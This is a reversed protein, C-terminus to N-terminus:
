DRVGVVLKKKQNDLPDIKKGEPYPTIDFLALYSGAGVSRSNSNKFNWAFILKKNENDFAMKKEIIIENGIPDYISVTGELYFEELLKKVNDPVVQLIMGIVEGNKNKGLNLDEFINESKLVAIIEDPLGEMNEINGLDIPTVAEPYLEFPTIKRDVYLKRRTNKTNNQFNDLEDAVCDGEHIWISDGDHMYKVGDNIKTVAFTMTKGSHDLDDLNVTYRKNNESVDLFYFPREKTVKKVPESFKVTLTDQISEDQYSLLKASEKDWHIIPAIKDYIKVTKKDIKGGLPFYYEKFDLKEDDDVYTRPDDSKDESVKIYFGEPHLGSSKVTFDRVGPFVISNKLIEKVYDENLGDDLDDTSKVRISDVYGDANTDYYEALEIEVTGGFDTPVKIMLTDLVLKPDEDNRFVATINDIFHYQLTGDGVDPDDNDDIVKKPVTVSFVNGSKKLTFTEKDLSNGETTRLEVKAKTYDYEAEGSNYSFRIELPDMTETIKSVPNDNFYFSLERDWCRVDFQEEPLPDLAPDIVVDFDFNITTDDEFTVVEGTLADISDRIIHYDLEFNFETTEGVLPFLNGFTFGTTDWNTVTQGNVIIQTPNFISTNLIENIVNEMLFEMLADNSTNNYEWINSKPNTTSYGNNKINETMDFLQQPVSDSVFFVTFTTPVDSGEVYADDSVGDVSFSANGDSFFIVFHNEKMYKADQMAKKVADFGANIHTATERWWPSKYKLRMVDRTELYTVVGNVISIATTDLTTDIELYYKLIEYGKKGNYDKNLQLLPIFAADAKDPSPITGFVPDDNQDYYLHKNFVAVGVEAIPSHAYITDILSRTVTFRHALTDVGESNYMSGSHDIVFMISPQHITDYVTDTPSGVYLYESMAVMEDPVIITGNIYDEPPGKYAFKCVEEAHLFGHFLILASVVICATKLRSYLM